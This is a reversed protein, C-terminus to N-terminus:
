SAVAQANLGVASTAVAHQLLMWRETAYDHGRAIAADSVALQYGPPIRGSNAWKHVADVSAGVEDALAQRTPWSDILDTIPHTQKM